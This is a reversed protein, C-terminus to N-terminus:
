QAPARAPEVMLARIAGESVPQYDWVDVGVNIMRGSQRWREHVHGHLLWAGHDVPRYDLYRDEDQSDGRYPFHCALTSIGGVNLEVQGQRVEAFGAERYRETWGEARRGHGAWCRDHNGAILIKRGQLQGVLSLSHDIRGLAVDGLVWVTDGDAVVGNWRAILEDDMEDPSAFPRDCYRIINAHGFHLDATFWTTM